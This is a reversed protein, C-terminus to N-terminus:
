SLHVHTDIMMPMVTKGALTVRTAGEPVKVDAARGAQVIRAGDVVLTGNEIAASGDGTILRAGEFATIGAAPAQALAPVALHAFLALAVAAAAASVNVRGM